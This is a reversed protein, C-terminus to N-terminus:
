RRGVKCLFSYIEELGLGRKVDRINAGVREAIEAIMNIYSIRLALFSEKVNEVFENHPVLAKSHMNGHGINFYPFKLSEEDLGPAHRQLQQILEPDNVKNEKFFNRGDFVPPLKKKHDLFWHRLNGFNIRDFDPWETALIVADANELMANLQAPDSYYEIATDDKFPGTRPDRLREVAVPDYVRIKAGRGLLKSIVKVARSERIDDTGPKFSAGLVVITKGQVNQLEHIVLKEVFRKWQLENVALADLVLGPLVGLGRSIQVASALDKPFCSGGFGLGASLFARGVRRDEEGSDTQTAIDHAVQDIDLGLVETLWSIFNIYSIKMGRYGNAAYKVLPASTLDTLVIPVSTRAHGPDPNAHAYLQKIKLAVAPDDAGIVVRGAVGRDDEVEKGERLFEPEWAFHITTGQLDEGAAERRQFEETVVEKLAAVTDRPPATSKGILIKSEGPHILRAIERVSDKLYSINAHGTESQPTQVALFIIERGEIAQAYDTTFKLKGTGLGETLLEQLDPAHFILEGRSLKEVIQPQIDVAVVDHGWDTVLLIAKTAGVFGTGVVVLKQAEHQPWANEARMESRQVAPVKKELRLLQVRDGEGAFPTRLTWGQLLDTREGYDKNLLLDRVLYRTGQDSIVQPLGEAVYTSVKGDEAAERNGAAFQFTAM